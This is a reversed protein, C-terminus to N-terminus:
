KIPTLFSNITQLIYDLGKFIFLFIRRILIIVSSVTIFYYKYFYKYFISNQFAISKDAQESINKFMEKRESNDSYDLSYLIVEQILGRFFIAKYILNLDNDGLLYFVDGFYIEGTFDLREISSELKKYIQQNSFDFDSNEADIGFVYFSYSPDSIINKIEQPTNPLDYDVFLKNSSETLKLINM